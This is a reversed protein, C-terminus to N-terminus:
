LTDNNNCKNVFSFCKPTTIRFTNFTNIFITHSVSLGFHDAFGMVTVGMQFRYNAFPFSGM